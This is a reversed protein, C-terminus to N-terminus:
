ARQEELKKLLKDWRAEEEKDGTERAEEREYHALESLMTWDASTLKYIDRGHKNM